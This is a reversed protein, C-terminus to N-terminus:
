GKIADKLTKGAKFAPRRSAPIKIPSGTKINRGMRAAVSRSEFTGFGTITVKEGKVIYQSSYGYLFSFLLYFKGQFLGVMLFTAISNAGGNVWEGRVGEESSLAMFPINVLLIGLLAFGRLVDPALDRSTDKPQSLM